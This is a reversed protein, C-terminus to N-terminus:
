PKLVVPLYVRYDEVEILGVLTMTDTGGPGSVTLAVTYM